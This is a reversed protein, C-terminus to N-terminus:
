MPRSREFESAVHILPSISLCGHRTNVVARRDRDRARAATKEFRVRQQLRKLLAKELRTM